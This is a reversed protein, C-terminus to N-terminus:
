LQVRPFLFTYSFKLTINIIPENTLIVLNINHSEISNTEPIVLPVLIEMGDFLDTTGFLKNEGLSLYYKSFSQLHDCYFKISDITEGFNIYQKLSIIHTLSSKNIISQIKFQKKRTMVQTITNNGHHIFNLGYSNLEFAEYDFRTNCIDRFDYTYMHEYVYVHFPCGSGIYGDCFICGNSNYKIIEM